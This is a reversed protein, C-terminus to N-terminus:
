PVDPESPVGSLDNSGAYPVKPRLLRSPLQPLLHQIFRPNTNSVVFSSQTFTTPIEQAVFKSEPLGTELCMRLFGIQIQILFDFPYGNM